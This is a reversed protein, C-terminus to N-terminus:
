NPRICCVRALNEPRFPAQRHKRIVYSDHFYHTCASRQHWIMLSSVEIPHESQLELLIMVLPSPPSLSSSSFSSLFSSPPMILLPSSPLMAYLRVNTVNHGTLATWITQIRAGSLVLFCPLPHTCLGDPTETHHVVPIYTHVYPVYLRLLQLVECWTFTNRRRREQGM